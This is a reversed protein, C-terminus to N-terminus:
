IMLVFLLLFTKLLFELCLISYKPFIFSKQYKSVWIVHILLYALQNEILAYLM